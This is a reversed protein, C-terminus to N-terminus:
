ENWKFTGSQADYYAMNMFEPRGHKKLLNAIHVAERAGQSDDLGARRTYAERLVAALNKSTPSRGALLPAFNGSGVMERIRTIPDDKPPEPRPIVVTKPSVMGGDDQIRGSASSPDRRSEEDAVAPDFHRDLITSEVISESELQSGGGPSKPIVVGKAEQAQFFKITRWPLKEEFLKEVLSSRKAPYSKPFMLFDQFQIIKTLVGKEQENLNKINTNKALFTAQEIAGRDSDRDFAGRYEALWWSVYPLVIQKNSRVINQAGILEKNDQMATLMVQLKSAYSDDYGGRNLQDDLIDRPDSHHLFVTSLYQSYLTEIATRSVSPFALFVCRAWVKRYESSLNNDVKKSDLLDAFRSALLKELNQADGWERNYELDDVLLQMRLLGTANSLSDVNKDKVDEYTFGLM